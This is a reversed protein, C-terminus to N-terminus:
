SYSVIFECTCTGAFVGLRSPLGVESMLRGASQVAREIRRAQVVKRQV